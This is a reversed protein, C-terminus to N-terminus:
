DCIGPTSTQISNQNRCSLQFWAEIRRYPPRFVALWLERREAKAGAGLTLGGIFDNSPGRDFDWVTVELTRTGAEAAHMAYFFQEHFEPFLTSKKIQTKQKTKKAKDPRLYLKVFPDSFGNPDMSALDACRIVEVCLQKKDELYRLGLQIKGRTPCALDLEGRQLPKKPGLPVSFDTLRDSTLRSLPLWYEGLWDSGYLDEDLVALRLTKQHINKEDFPEFTLAENWVPNLCQPRTSTRPRPSNHSGPLIQCVVYPDSLGNADMAILNKAKHIAVHLQKNVTDHYLTFYLMGFPADDTSVRTGRREPPPKNIIDPSLMPQEGTLSAVKKSTNPNGFSSVTSSPIVKQTAFAPHYPLSTIVGHNSVGWDATDGSAKRIQGNNAMNESGIIKRQQQLCTSAKLTPSLMSTAGGVSDILPTTPLNGGCIKPSSNSISTNTPHRIKRQFLQTGTGHDAITTISDDESFVSPKSTQINSRDEAESKSTLKSFRRRPQFKVWVSSEQDTLPEHVPEILDMPSTIKGSTGPLCPSNPCSAMQIRPLTKYFWAGSRKWVERAEYCVKCITISSPQRRSEAKARVREFINQGSQAISASMGRLRNRSPQGGALHLSADRESVSRARTARGIMTQMPNASLSSNGPLLAIWSKYRDQDTIRFSRQPLEVSCASCVYRGCDSCVFPHNTLRGFEQKCFACGNRNTTNSDQKMRDLRQLMQDIRHQEGELLTENKQLVKLIQEEEEMNLRLGKQGQISQARSSWGTGLRARLALQRDNPCIYAEM